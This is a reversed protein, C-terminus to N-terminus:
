LSCGELAQWARERGLRDAELVDELELAPVVVVQDLVRAILRSIDPFSIKGALFAEVAVENAANLLAPATGGQEM